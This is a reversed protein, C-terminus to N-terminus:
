LGEAEHDTFIGRNRLESPTNSVRISLADHRGRINDMKEELATISRRHELIKKEAKAFDDDLQAMRERLRERRPLDSESEELKRKLEDVRRQLAVIEEYRESAEASFGRRVRGNQDVVKESTEQYKNKKFRLQNEVLTLRELHREVVPDAPASKTNENQMKLSM